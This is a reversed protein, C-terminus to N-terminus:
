ERKRPSGDPNFYGSSHRRWHEQLSKETVGAPLAEMPVAHGNALTYSVSALPEHRSVRYVITVTKSDKSWLAAFSGAGTDLTDAIESLPGVIKGSVADVLYLHFNDYGLEGEGHAKIVWKKDLSTGNSIPLYEDKQYEHNDTAQAMSVMALLVIAVLHRIRKM